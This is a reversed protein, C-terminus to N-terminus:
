GLREVIESGEVYPIGTREGYARAAAPPLAGGTEDDLM